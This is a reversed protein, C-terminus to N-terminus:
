QTRAYRLWWSYSGRRSALVCQVIVLLYNARISLSKSSQDPLGGQDLRGDPSPAASMPGSGLARGGDEGTNLRLVKGSTVRGAFVDPPIVVAPPVFVMGTQGFCNVLGNGHTTKEKKKAGLQGQWQSKCNELLIEM